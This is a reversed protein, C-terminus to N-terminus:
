WFTSRRLSRISSVGSLLNLDTNSISAKMRLIHPDFRHASKMEWCVAINEGLSIPRLLSACSAM